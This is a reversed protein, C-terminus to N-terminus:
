DLGYMRRIRAYCGLSLKWMQFRGSDIGEGGKEMEDAVDFLVAAVHAAAFPTDPELNRLMRTIPEIAEHDDSCITELWKKPADWPRGRYLRHHVQLTKDKRGCVRCAWGDRQFIELRRRQWRPDRLLEAYSKRM